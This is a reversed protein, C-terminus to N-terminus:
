LSLGIEDPSTDVGGVVGTLGGRPVVPQGWEHCIRLMKSLEETSGPRLLAACNLAENPKWYSAMRVAAEAPTLVSEKGFTDLLLALIPAM